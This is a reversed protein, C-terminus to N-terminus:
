GNLAKRDADGADSFYCTNAQDILKRVWVPGGQAAIHARQEDTLRIYYRGALPEKRSARQKPPKPPKPEKPPKQVGKVAARIFGPKFQPFLAQLQLYTAGATRAAILAATDPKPKARTPRASRAKRPKKHQLIIDAGRTTKRQGYFAADGYFRSVTPIDFANM